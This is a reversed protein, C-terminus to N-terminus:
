PKRNRADLEDILKLFEDPVPEAAVDQYLRRLATTIPDAGGAQSRVPKRPAKRPM